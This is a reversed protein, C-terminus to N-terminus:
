SISSAGNKHHLPAPKNAIAKYKVRNWKNEERGGGSQRWSEATMDFISTNKEYVINDYHRLTIAAM